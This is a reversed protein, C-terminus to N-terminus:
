WWPYPKLSYSEFLGYSYSTYYNKRTFIQQKTDTKLTPVQSFGDTTVSFQVRSIWKDKWSHACELNHTFAPQLFPNGTAYSTSSM